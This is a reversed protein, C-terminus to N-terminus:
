GDDEVPVSLKLANKTITRIARMSRQLIVLDSKSFPKQEKMLTKYVQIPIEVTTMRQECKPCHRRRRSGYKAKQTDLVYTKLSGCNKCEM